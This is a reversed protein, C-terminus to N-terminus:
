ENTQAITALTIICPSEEECSADIVCREECGTHIICDEAFYAKYEADECVMVKTVSNESVDEETGDGFVRVWKVFHYGDNEFARLVAFTTSLYSGDGSTSGYLSDNPSTTINFYEMEASNEENFNELILITTSPIVQLLYKIVVEKLFSKHLKENNNNTLVVVKSNLYTTPNQQPVSKKVLKDRQEDVSFEYEYNYEQLNEFVIKEKDFVDDGVHTIAYKFQKAIDVYKEDDFNYNEYVHKYPNEMYEFFSKGCDYNGNGTHPNNFLITPIISNLYKAHLYDNHTVGNQEFQSNYEIEGDMPINKWSSFFQPNYIDSCKFFHSLNFPIDEDYEVYDNVDFVYYIDGESLDISTLSMLATINPLMHLYPVTESYDYGYDPDNSWKGWGGHQQFYLYGDYLKSNTHYPIIYKTNEYFIDGLPVGSYYDNYVRDGIKHRSLEVVMEMYTYEDNLSYYRYVGSETTRIFQPSFENVGNSVADEFTTFSNSDTVWQSQDQTYPDNLIEEYFYFTDDSNFPTTYAYYEEISFDPTDGDLGLGFLGMVMEISHMTGKTKFIRNTSLFLRRNFSIDTSFPTTVNPNLSNFWTDHQYMNNNIEIDSLVYYTYGGNGYIRIYVPSDSNINAPLRVLTNSQNWYSSSGDTPDYAVECYMMHGKKYYVGGVEIYEPSDDDIQTPITDMHEPTVDDPIDCSVNWYGTNHNHTIWPNYKGIIGYETDNTNLFEETLFLLSPNSYVKHYFRPTEESEEGEDESPEDQGEVEDEEQACGIQIYEPSDVHVELPLIPVPTPIVGDPIDTEEIPDYFFVGFITSSVDWGHINNKDSLEANPVNTNGDYSVNNTMKIGEIYMRAEDYIRGYLHMVDMMRNGGEIYEYEDNNTFVRRYTWDFNKITEHTMCRWICDSYIGDYIEGMNTMSTVFSVFSPSIADICYGNSPWTFRREVMKYTEDPMKFPVKFVNSYLPRSERKLLKREFGDLKDFYNDIVVKNPQITLFSGDSNQEDFCYVDSGNVRYMRIVYSGNETEITITYLNRNNDDCLEYVNGISIYYGNEDDWQYYESGSRVYENCRLFYNNCNEGFDVAEFRNTTENWKYLVGKYYLYDYGNNHYQPDELVSDILSTVTYSTIPFSEIIGTEENDTTVVYEAWSLAMYKIPNDVEFVSGAESYLDINFDNEILLYNTAYTGGNIDTTMFPMESLAMMGPFSSVINEISKRILDSMSGYYAYFTLNDSDKNLEVNNVLGSADKVDDYTYHAVWKGYDHKKKFFPLSNDTFIFGGDGYYPKKGPEIRHVNGITVWDREFISGDTINQHKKKLIFNSYSKSYRGM